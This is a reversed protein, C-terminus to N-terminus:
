IEDDKLTIVLDSNNCYNRVPLHIFQHHALEPISKQLSKITDNKIQTNYGILQSEQIQTSSGTCNVKYGSTKM